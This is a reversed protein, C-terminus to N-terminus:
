KASIALIVIYKVLNVPYTPYPIPRAEKWFFSDSGLGGGGDFFAIVPCTPPLFVYCSGRGVCDPNRKAPKTQFGALAVFFNM